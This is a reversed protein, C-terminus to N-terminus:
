GDNSGRRKVDDDVADATTYNKNSLSVIERWAVSRAHPQGVAAVERCDPFRIQHRVHAPAAHETGTLHEECLGEDGVVEAATRAEM